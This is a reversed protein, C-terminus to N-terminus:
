SAIFARWLAYGLTVECAAVACGIMVYASLWLVRDRVPRSM